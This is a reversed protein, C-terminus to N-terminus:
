HAEVRLASAVDLRAARRAPGLAAVVAAAALGGTALALVLPDLPAVEFLVPSLESGLLRSLLWAFLLGPALGVAAITLGDRLVLRRIRAPTAGFAM